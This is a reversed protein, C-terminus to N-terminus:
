ILNKCFLNDAYIGYWQSDSESLHIEYGKFKGTVHEVNQIFVAYLEIDSDRKNYNDYFNADVLNDGIKIEDARKETLTEYDTTLVISDISLETTALDDGGYSVIIKDDINCEILEDVICNTNRFNSWEELTEDEARITEGQVIVGTYIQSAKIEDPNTSIKTTEFVKIM